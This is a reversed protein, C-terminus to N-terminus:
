IKKSRRVKLMINKIRFNINESKVFIKFKRYVWNNM